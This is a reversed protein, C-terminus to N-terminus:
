KSTLWKSVNANSKVHDVLTQLTPHNPMVDPIVSTVFGSWLFFSLDAMSIKDGLFFAGQGKLKKLVGALLHLIEHIRNKSDEKARQNATAQYIGTLQALHEVLECVFDVASHQRNDKPVLGFERALSRSIVETFCLFENDGFQLLPFATAPIGYDKAFTKLDDDNLQIDEYNRGAAAFILQIIKVEGRARAYYLKYGTM